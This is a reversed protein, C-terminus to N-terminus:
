RKLRLLTEGEDIFDIHGSAVAIIREGSPCLIQPSQWELELFRAIPIAEEKKGTVLPVKKKFGRSPMESALTFTLTEEGNIADTSRRVLGTPNGYREVVVLWTEEGDLPQKGRTAYPISLFGALLKGLKRAKASPDRSTTVLMVKMLGSEDEQGDNATGEDPDSTRLLSM